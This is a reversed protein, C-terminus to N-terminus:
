LATAVPEGTGAANGNQGEPNEETELNEEDDSPVEEVLGPAPFYVAAEDIAKEPSESVHYPGIGAFALFSESDIKRVVCVFIEYGTREEAKEEFEEISTAIRKAEPPKDREFVGFNMLDSKYNSVIIKIDNKKTSDYKFVIIPVRSTEHEFPYNKEVYNRFIIQFVTAKNRPNPAAWVVPYIDDKSNPTFAPKHREAYCGEIPPQGPKPLSPEGFLINLLYKEVDMELKKESIKLRMCMCKGDLLLKTSNETMEYDSEKLMDNVITEDLQKRFEEAIKYNDPLLEEILEMYPPSSKKDRRHFEEDKFVWPYLILCTEKALSSTFHNMEAEYKAKIEAEEQAKKAAEKALRTEELIRLRKEEEPSRETVEMLFNPQEGTQLRQLEENLVRHLEPCDAGFLLNIMKGDHLFMWTPESKGRFRELDKIDDSKAIAYSLLDGGTEMKVKKLLSIMGACPGSWGSYVDVVVLGKRELIKKWEDDTNVETQLAAPTSKKAMRRAASIGGRKKGLM